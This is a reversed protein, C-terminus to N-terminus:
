TEEVAVVELLHGVAVADFTRRAAAVMEAAAVVATGAGMSGAVAWALFPRGGM